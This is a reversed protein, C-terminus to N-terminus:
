QNIFSKSIGKISPLNSNNKPTPSYKIAPRTKEKYHYAPKNKKVSENLEDWSKFGRKSLEADLQTNNDSSMPTNRNGMFYRVSRNNELMLDDNSLSSFKDAGKSALKQNVKIAKVQSYDIADQVPQSGFKQSIPFSSQDKAPKASEELPVTAKPPQTSQKQIAKKSSSPSTKTSPSSTKGIPTAPNPLNQWITPTTPSISEISTQQMQPLNGAVKEAEKQKIYDALPILKGTRVGIKPAFNTRFEKRDEGKYRITKRVKSPDVDHEKLYDGVSGGEAKGEALKSSDIFKQYDQGYDTSKILKGNVNEQIKLAPFMTASTQTGVISDTKLERGPAIPFGYSSYNKHIDTLSGQIRAVDAPTKITSQPNSKNFEQLKNIGYSTDHDYIEPKGFNPDSRLSRSFNNWTEREQLTVDGGEALHVNDPAIYPRSIGSGAQNQKQHFMIYDKESPFKEWYEEPSGISQFEANESDIQQKILKNGADDLDQQSDMVPASFKSNQNFERGQNLIKKQRGSMGWDWFPGTNEETDNWAHKIVGGRKYLGTSLSGFNAPKSKYKKAEELGISSFDQDDIYGGEAMKIPKETKRNYMYKDTEGQEQPQRKRTFVKQFNSSTVEPFKNLDPRLSSDSTNLLAAEKKKITIPKLQQRNEVLTESYTPQASSMLGQMASSEGNETPEKIGASLYIDKAILSGASGLANFFEASSKSETIANKLLTPDIINKYKETPIDKWVKSLEIDHKNWFDKYQASLKRGGIIDNGFSAAKGEATQLNAMVKAAQAEDYVSKTVITPKKVISKSIAKGGRVAVNGLGELMGPLLLLDEINIPSYDARGSSQENWQQKDIPLPSHYGKKPDIIIKNVRTNDSAAVEDGRKYSIVKKKM